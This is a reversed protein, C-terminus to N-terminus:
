YSINLKERLNQIAEESTEGETKIGTAPNEAVFITEGDKEYDSVTAFIQKKYEAAIELLKESPQPPNDLAHIFKEMDAASLKLPFECEIWCKEEVCKEDTLHCIKDIM